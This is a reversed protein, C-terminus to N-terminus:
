DADRPLAVATAVDAELLDPEGVVAALRPRQEGATRVLQRRRLVRVAPHDRRARRGVRGADPDDHPAAARGDGAARAAEEATRGLARRGADDRSFSLTSAHASRSRREPRWPQKRPWPWAPAASCATARAPVTRVSCTRRRCRSRPPRRRCTPA